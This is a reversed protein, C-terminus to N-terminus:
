STKARGHCYKFKRGSGCYCLKNRDRGKPSRGSQGSPRPALDPYTKVTGEYRTIKTLFGTERQLREAERQHEETWFRTDLYLLDESNENEPPGIAIGVVDEAEPYVVKVVQLYEGLCHRRAQRYKEYPVGDLHRMVMFVYYPDGPSSPEIVRVEKWSQTGVRQCLGIFRTTLFRRRTRSERALFRVLRESHTVGRRTTEYQTDNLINTNFRETLEDWLYSIKDAQLQDLRQPHQQYGLWLGEDICILHAGQPLIFDHWDDPGVNRLYYALLDEEGAAYGLKGVTILREKRTLYEVFDKVTDLTRLLVDLTTDDLVHVFGKSPDIQGITFPCAPSPLTLRGGILAVHDDGLLLHDDGILSPVLMLSGSGGLARRCAESAGHAVVIRHVQMREPEPLPFPFPQTCARDLFLGDSGKKIRREAGYIQGASEKIADKYWRRWAVEPGPRPKYEVHKDSFVIVHNEFAVLLDCVEKKDEGRHINPYSWLNLFTRETLQALYRESPTTGRGKRVAYSGLPLLLAEEDHEDSTSLDHHM